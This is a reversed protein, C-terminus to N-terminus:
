SSKQLAKLIEKQAENLAQPVMNLAAQLGKESYTTLIANLANAVPGWVKAMNPSKPMPISYAIAKIFGSVIPYDSLHSEIYKVLTLKVPIFGSEDVLYKLTNDNLTFWMVFLLSAYLRYKNTTAIKTIWLLKIGSFPHPIRDGIKPIPVVGINPIKQKIAPIDWPGTIIFPARGELFIKLQTEHGLDGTYEYRIVNQLLFKIGEITGTSNVGVKGTEDNYYYGGFATVFPYVFYPDIQYALGYTKNQPNYYKEMIEKMQEFTTPPNKVMNKNYVLAIAEGAWPLGYVHLKYVGASFAAALYQSQLDSITQPPLYKDLPIIYGGEALEGTWDHAWTFVDATNKTDGAMVGAIVAQEMNQVTGTYKVTIGPYEKMFENVVHQIGKVEFPMMSTWFNITVKIKGEKVEQVFNYFDKPVHIKSTGIQLIELQPGATTTTTTHPSTTTTTTTTTTTQVTTTTTTTPTTTTTTTQVPSTTTPSQTTTTTTPTAHQTSIFYIALGAIIIAIIIGVGAAKSLAKLTRM